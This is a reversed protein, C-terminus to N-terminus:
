PRVLSVQMTEINYGISSQGVSEGKIGFSEVSYKAPDTGLAPDVTRAMAIARAFEDHNVRYAFDGGWGWAHDSDFTKTTQLSPLGTSRGVTTTGLALAVIANGTAADIAALDTPTVTGIGGPSLTLRHGSAGDRLTLMAQVYAANGSGESRVQKVFMRYTLMLDMPVDYPAFPHALEAPNGNVYAGPPVAVVVRTNISSINGSTRDASTVFFGGGPGLGFYLYTQAFSHQSASSADTGPLAEVLYAQTGTRAFYPAIQTADLSGVVTALAPMNVSDFCWNLTGIGNNCPVPTAGNSLTLTNLVMDTQALPEPQVLYACFAVGEEIWGPRAHMQTRIAPDVVYRHNGRGSSWGNNTFRYVPSLSKDPCQLTSPDLDFAALGADGGGFGDPSMPVYTWGSGPRKLADCEAANITIFVTPPQAGGNAVFECVPRLYACLAASDQCDWAYAPTEWTAGTPLTGAPAPHDLGLSCAAKESHWSMFFRDTAADYHEAVNASNPDPINICFAHASGAWALALGFGLIVNAFLRGSKM